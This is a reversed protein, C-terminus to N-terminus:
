KKNRRYSYYAYFCLILTVLGLRTIFSMQLDFSHVLVMLLSGVLCFAAVTMIEKWGQNKRSKRRIMGWIFFIVAVAWLIYITPWLIVNM